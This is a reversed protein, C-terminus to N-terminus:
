RGTRIIMCLQSVDWKMSLATLGTRGAVGVMEANSPVFGIRRALLHYKGPTLNAFTARGMKDTLASVRANVSEPDPSLTVLVGEVGIGDESDVADVAFTASSGGPSPLAQRTASEHASHPRLMPIRCTCAGGGADSQRRLRSTDLAPVVGILIDRQPPWFSVDKQCASYVRSEVSLKYDGAPQPGFSFRGTDDSKTRALLSTGRYLAVPVNAVPTLSDRVIGSFAPGSRVPSVETPKPAQQCGFTLLAAFGALRLPWTQASPAKM